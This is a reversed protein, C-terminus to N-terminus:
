AIKQEAFIEPRLAAPTMERDPTVEKSARAIAVILTASGKRHKGALQWLYPVTTGVKEALAQREEPKAQNLWDRLNM